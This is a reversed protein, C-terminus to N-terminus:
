GGCSSILEAPMAIDFISAAHATSAKVATCNASARGKVAVSRARRSLTESGRM